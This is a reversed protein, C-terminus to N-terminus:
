RSRSLGTSPDTQGPRIVDSAPIEHYRWDTISVGCDDTATCSVLYTGPEDYVHLPGPDASYCDDGFDWVTAVISGDIDDATVSFTATLGESSVDLSLIPPQNNSRRNDLCDLLSYADDAMRSEIRTMANVDPVGHARWHPLLVEEVADLLHAELPFVSAQITAENAKLWLSRARDYM